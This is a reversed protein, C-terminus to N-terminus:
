TSFPQQSLWRWFAAEVHHAQQIHVGSANSLLRWGAQRNARRRLLVVDRDIYIIGYSPNQFVLLVCEQFNASTMPFTSKAPCLAIYEIDAADISRHFLPSRIHHKALTELERRAKLTNGWGRQLFPNPFTYLQRHHSLYPTLSIQATVSAHAPILRMMRQASRRREQRTHKQLASMQALDRKQKWMSNQTAGIMAWAVFNIGVLMLGRRGFVSHLRRCSEVSAAFLLPILLASYYGGELTHMIGRSSFLNTAMAPLATLLLSPTLLPLFMLPQFLHRLYTRGDVSVADSWVTDPRTIIGLALSPLNHGYKAYLLYYGSAVGGNFYRITALAGILFLAGAIVTLFGIRRDIRWWVWVGLACVTLGVNEKTLAALLLCLFYSLWRRRWLCLFAALLLPVALTDPHFEYTNAWQLMPYSLYAAAFCLGWWPSNLRERALQYLPFAGLALAVTQTTLLVKPSDWLWYLPALFYLIVSFHDSLIHLGRLTVFPTQGRSILRTAQDFIALDWGTHFGMSDYLHFVTRLMLAIYLLVM